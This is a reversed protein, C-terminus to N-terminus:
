YDPCSDFRCYYWVKSSAEEGESDFPIEEHRLRKVLKAVQSHQPHSGRQTTLKLVLPVASMWGKELSCCM